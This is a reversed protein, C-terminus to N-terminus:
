SPSAVDLDAARAADYASPPERLPLLFAVPQGRETVELSGGAKVRHLYADFDQRLERVSVQDVTVM